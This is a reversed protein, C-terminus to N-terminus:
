TRLAVKILRLFLSSQVKEFGASCGGGSLYCASQFDALWCRGPTEFGNHILNEDNASALERAICSTFGNPRPRCILGKPVDVFGPYGGLDPAQGKKSALLNMQLSCADAGQKLGGSEIWQRPKNGTQTGLPKEPSDM